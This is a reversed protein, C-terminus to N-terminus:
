SKSPPSRPKATTMFWSSSRDQKVTDVKGSEPFFRVHETVQSNRKDVSKKLEPVFGGTICVDCDPEHSGDKRGGKGSRTKQCAAGGHQTTPSCNKSFM